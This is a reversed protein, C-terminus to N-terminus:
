THYFTILFSTGKKPESIVEIEGQGKQVIEKILYLGFGRGKKEKTSYGNDFIHAKVEDTMGIGNDTVLIALVDEDEDVSVHIIKEEMQVDRLADFANEILNGFLIVFDHHDLNNPFATLRSERDIELRIGQEKAYSIKSLLLGSINENKIRENLFNTIEDHEEKVQTLYSLAQEHHGLQLLGAITHLKNKHEHTQVRLAQVFAKVGTLEEALKKVETRDKFMAVAGVTKGNVQIPIRNSMISHDNIYLERNFIPKDLELIEPLRTDPLVDMIKKGILTSPQKRVCLIECAKENFITITLENDIAIIGEHMANFTETREVYMKAIEHPELGFMQKKMHLGLTHAGWASFFISLLITMMLETQISQLLEAVTLVSYGVVVVGIQKGENNMIPVFARVMDGHEGHAISTYYHEAFAANLDGSQSVQGIEETNPHSYKRRQMDLVVIYQAGNIDRIEEVVPNIHKTAENFNNNTIYTKLEPLQSVTKAVLLAQNGLKDKQENMVFGLLFTGGISFSLM